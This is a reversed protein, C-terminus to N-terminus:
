FNVRMTPEQECGQGPNSKPRPRTNDWFSKRTEKQRKTARAREKDVPPESDARKRVFNSENKSNGYVGFIQYIPSKSRKMEYSSRVPM